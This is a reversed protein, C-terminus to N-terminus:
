EKLYTEYLTILNKLRSPSFYGFSVKIIPYSITTLAFIYAWTTSPIGREITFISLSPFWNNRIWDFSMSFHIVFLATIFLGIEINSFFLLIFRREKSPIIAWIALALGLITIFDSPQM